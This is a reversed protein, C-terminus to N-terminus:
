LLLISTRMSFFLGFILIHGTERCSQSPSPMGQDVRARLFSPHMRRGQQLLPGDVEPSPHSGPRGWQTLARALGGLTGEAKCCDREKYILFSTNMHILRQCSQYTCFGWFGRSLSWPDGSLVKICNEWATESVTCQLCWLPVCLRTPGGQEAVVLQDRKVARSSLPPTSFVPSQFRVCEQEMVESRLNKRESSLKKMKYSLHLRARGRLEQSSKSILGMFGKARHRAGPFCEVFPLKKNRGSGNHKRILREASVSGPAIRPASRWEWCNGEKDSARSLM